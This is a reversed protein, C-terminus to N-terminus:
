DQIEMQFDVGVLMELHDKKGGVMLWIKMAWMLRLDQHFISPQSNVEGLPNRPHSQIGVLILPFDRPYKSQQNAKLSIQPTSGPGKFVHIQTNTLNPPIPTVSIKPISWTSSTQATPNGVDINLGSVNISSAIPTTLPINPSM